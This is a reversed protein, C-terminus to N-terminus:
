SKKDPEAAPASDSPAGNPAEVKPEEKPLAAPDVSEVAKRAADRVLQEPDKLLELM